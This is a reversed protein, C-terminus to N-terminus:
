QLKESCVNNSPNSTEKISFTNGKPLRLYALAMRGIVIKYAYIRVLVITVFKLIIFTMDM